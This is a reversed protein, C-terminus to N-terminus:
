WCLGTTKSFRLGHPYGIGSLVGDAASSPGLAGDNRYLLVSRSNSQNSIAIRVPRVSQPDRRRARKRPRQRAANRQRRGCLRGTPRAPAAVGYRRLQQRDGAIRDPRARDSLDFLSYRPDGRVLYARSSRWHRRLHRSILRLGAGGAAARVFHGAGDRNAVICSHGCRGLAHRAPPQAADSSAEVANSLIVQESGAEVDLILLRSQQM